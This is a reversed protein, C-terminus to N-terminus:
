NASPHPKTKRAKHYSNVPSEGDQVLDEAIDTQITLTIMKMWLLCSHYRQQSHYIGSPPFIAEKDMKLAM